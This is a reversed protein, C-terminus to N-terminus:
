IVWGDKRLSTKFENYLDMNKYEVLSMLKPVDLISVQETTYGYLVMIIDKLKAEIM